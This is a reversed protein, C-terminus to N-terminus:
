GLLQRRGHLGRKEFAHELHKKVTNISIGLREAIQKNTLGERMLALAEAERVTLPQAGCPLSCEGPEADVRAAELLTMYLTQMVRRPFWLEGALVADLADILRPASMSWEVCGKAQCQIALEFGHSSPADWGLIWETAKHHRQLRRMADVGCREILRVDLVLVRPAQERLLRVLVDADAPLM